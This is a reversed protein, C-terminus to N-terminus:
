GPFLEGPRRFTPPPPDAPEGVVLGLRRAHLGFLDAAAQWRAGQGRMRKGFGGDAQRGERMETLAGLVKDARLPLAERLREEFVPRVPGPLRLLTQFARGAGAEAARELIEPVQADNLGPVLPSVSVGTPVGAESLIRLAEFRLTPSGVAPELSRAVAEDSFPISVFVTAQAAEHLRALLEVDRRVLAGKTIITVANRHELCVELCARTLGYSAELPQYCDTVGSFVIREGTWDRRAFRKRLLAAADTKVVIRREFDTGAGWGLYEHGPRAYCYACGHFCGRYPNLSWRFPLDPSDNESLISKSRDEYVQLTAPPPPGLWEVHPGAWPNPPNSVPRDAM